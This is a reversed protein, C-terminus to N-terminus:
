DASWHEACYKSIRKDNMVRQSHEVLAPASLEVLHTPVYDLVGSTLHRVLMLVKLDAISLREGAFYRGGHEELRKQLRTLYFPIQSDVLARRKAKKQNEPLPVTAAILSTIDEVADMTEDCLAAEWPAAPYLDALKGVYRNITNSQALDHGDVELVPLAGFPADAKRREWDAFSVRDDKFTVGSVSLAM